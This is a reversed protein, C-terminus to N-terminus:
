RKPKMVYKGALAMEDTTKNWDVDKPNVPGATLQGGQVGSGVDKKPVARSTKEIEGASLKQLRERWKKIEPQASTPLSARTRTMLRDLLAKRHTADFRGSGVLRDLESKIVPHADFGDAIQGFVRAAIEDKIDDPLKDGVKEDFYKRVEALGASHFEERVSQQFSAAAQQSGNQERALLEQYRRYEPDDQFRSVNPQRSNAGNQPGGNKGLYRAGVARLFDAAVKPDVESGDELRIPQDTGVFNVLNAFLNQGIPTALTEYLQPMSGLVQPMAALVRQFSAPDEALTRVLGVPDREYQSNIRGYLQADENIVTLDEITPAVAKYQRAEEVTPMVARYGEPGNLAFHDDRVIRDLEKGLRPNSLKITKLLNELKEPLPETSQEAPQEPETKAPEGEGPEAVEQPEEAGETGSTAEEPAVSTFLDADSTGADATPPPAAGAGAGTDAIGATEMDGM